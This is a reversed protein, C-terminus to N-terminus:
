EYSFDFRGMIVGMLAVAMAMVIDDHSGSPAGMKSSGLYNFKRAESIFQKSRLVLEGSRIVRDLEEIMQPKSSGTTVWGLKKDPGSFVDPYPPYKVVGQRVIGNALNLLVAHGHNNREVAIMAKNYAMGIKYVKESLMDPSWRGHLLAVQEIPPPFARIVMAASYDSNIDGESCDVGIIYRAGPDSIKYLYLDGGLWIEVPNQEPLIKDAAKLMDVDFVPSGSKIFSDEDDLEPYEQIFKKGLRNKRVRRWKIQELLLGDKEDEDLGEPRLLRYKRDHKIKESIEMEDETLEMKEGELLPIRYELHEFWRYYHTKYENRKDKAKMYYDYFPGGEGRATSEIVIYGTDPVSELLGIFFDDKFASSSAESLHLNQITKSNHIIGSTTRFRFGPQDLMDFLQGRYYITEVKRIKQYIYDDSDAYKNKNLQAKFKSERRFLHATKGKFELNTIHGRKKNKGLSAWGYGLSAILDRLQYCLQPRASGYSVVNEGEWGDGDILGQVLGICFEKPAMFVWDPIYKKPTGKQPIVQVKGKQIRLSTRLDTTPLYFYEKFFNSWATSCVTVYMGNKSSRSSSIRAHAKPKKSSYFHNKFFKKIRNAYKKERKHLAFGVQGGGVQAEALMMGVIWGFEESLPIDVEKNRVLETKSENSLRKLYRRITGSYLNFIRGLEKVSTGAKRLRVLEELDVKRWVWSRKRIPIKVKLSRIEGTIKRKPQAVQDLVSIDGAKKWGHQTLILHDPTVVIPYGSNGWIDISILDGDWKLTPVGVESIKKTFGNEQLIEVNPHVCRGFDKAEASGIFFVSNIKDFYLQKQNNLRVQPRFVEPVSEFMFKARKFLDAADETTHAVIVSVTNPVFMTDHLFLGIVETSNHSVFGEAIYTKTSTQLDIMEQVQLKEISVVKSWSRKPFTHGEWWRKGIAKTPRTQGIIQFLENLRGVKVNKVQKGPTQRVGTPTPDGVKPPESAEIRYHYGKEKVYKEMRDFVPGVAQCASIDVSRGKLNGLCGEGDVIGGFWGDENSGDEWPKAVWQIEDGVRFDKAKRWLTWSECGDGKGYKDRFPVGKDGKRLRSLMKHEGTLILERGDDMKLRYAVELISSKGEVTATRLKRPYRRKEGTALEFGGSPYEDTAIVDQGIQIDKIPVWKLDSTLILTGPHCCFGLQRPKLIIDRRSRGKYYRDQASNFIFPVIERGKTTISV